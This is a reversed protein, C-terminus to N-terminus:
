NAKPKHETVSYGANTLIKKVEEVDMNDKVLPMTGELYLLTHGNEFFDVTMTPKDPHTGVLELTM